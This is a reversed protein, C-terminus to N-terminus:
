NDRADDAMDQWCADMAMELKWDDPDAYDTPPTTQDELCATCCCREMSVNTDFPHSLIM